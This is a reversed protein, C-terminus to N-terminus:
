VNIKLKDQAGTPLWLLADLVQDLLAKHRVGRHADRAEDQLPFAEASLHDSLEQAVPLLLEVLIHQLSHALVGHLPLALAIHSM